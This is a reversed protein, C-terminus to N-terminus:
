RCRCEEVCGCKKTSSKMVLPKDINKMERDLFERINDEKPSIKHLQSLDEEVPIDDPDVKLDSNSTNNMNTIKRFDEFSIESEPNKAKYASYKVSMLPNFDPEYEDNDYQEFIYQLDEVDLDSMHNKLHNIISNIAKTYKERIYPQALFPTIFQDFYKDKQSLLSNKIPFLLTDIFNSKTEKKDFKGAMNKKIEKGAAM